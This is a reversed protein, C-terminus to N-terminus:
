LASTIWWVNGHPDTIGSSRGYPQDAPQMISTAGAGLAISYTEDADAVNIYMGANQVKWKDTTESIMICSDNNIIVEGHMLKGDDTYHIEKETAGFVDKLFQILGLGNEVILYPMVTNYGQPIQISKM